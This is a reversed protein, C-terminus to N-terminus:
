SSAKPMSLTESHSEAEADASRHPAGWARDPWESTRGTALRVLYTDHKVANQGRQCQDPQPVRHPCRTSLTHFFFKAAPLRRQPASITAALVPSYVPHEAEGCVMVVCWLMSGVSTPTEDTRYRISYRPQRRCISATCGSDRSRGYYPKSALLRM